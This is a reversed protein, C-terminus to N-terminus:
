LTGEMRRYAYAAAGITGAQQALQATVLQCAEASLPLARRTITERVTGLLRDGAAAMGGGVVILQPNFLNIANALGTGLIEGTYRLVEIALEDGADYAESIMKATILSHDGETWKDIISSRGAALERKMTNAIGTASAYTELCGNNGCGCPPGDAYMNLHGLEGASATTGYIVKGDSVVGSGLGTGLTILMLHKYGVGAGFWWEGYLNVRVDNDIYVPFDFTEKMINVVHINRWNPFNPSHFSMGEQPDMFGTIGCGMCAVESLDGSQKAVLMRVAGKIRELVHLPGGAAESPISLEQLLQYHLDYLAAKINTGGLDVGVIYKAM